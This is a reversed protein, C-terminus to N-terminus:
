MREPRESLPVELATVRKALEDARFDQRELSHKLAEVSGRIQGFHDGHHKELSEIRELLGRYLQGLQRFQDQGNQALRQEMAELKAELRQEASQLEDRIMQRLQDADM